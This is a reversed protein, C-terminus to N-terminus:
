PRVHGADRGSNAGVRFVDRPCQLRGLRKPFTVLTSVGDNPNSARRLGGAFRVVVVAGESECAVGGLKRLPQRAVGQERQITM